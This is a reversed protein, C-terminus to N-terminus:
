GIFELAANDIWEGPLLHARRTRQRVRVDCVWLREVLVRVHPVIWQPINVWIPVTRPTKSREDTGADTGGGIEQVTKQIITM